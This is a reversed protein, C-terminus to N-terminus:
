RWRGSRAGWRHLSKGKRSRYKGEYWLWFSKARVHLGQIIQRVRERSIGLAEACDRLSARRYYSAEMIRLEREDCEQRHQLLLQVQRKFGDDKSHRHGSRAYRSQSIDLSNALDGRGFGV